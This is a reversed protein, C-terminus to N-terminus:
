RNVAVVQLLSVRDGLRVSPVLGGLGFAQLRDADVGAAILQQRVREAAETSRSRQVQLTQVSFDHAVLAVSWNRKSTLASVLSDLHEQDLGQESMADVFTFAQGDQWRAILADASSSIRVNQQTRVSDLQVYNRKNGRQVSYLAVYTHSGDVNSLEFATYAQESDQGYLQRIHFRENAWASSSGCRRQLCFYLERGGLQQLQQRYFAFLDDASYDEPFELTIRHVLGSLRQEREARWRSNAKKLEGLTLRYDANQSSSEQVINFDEHHRWQLESSAVSATVLLLLLTVWLTLAQKM